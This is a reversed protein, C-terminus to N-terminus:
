PHGARGTWSAAYVRNAPFLRSLRSHLEVRSLDLAADSCNTLPLKIIRPESSPHAAGALNRTLDSIEKAEESLTVTQVAFRRRQIAGPKMSRLGFRPLQAEESCKNGSSLRQDKRRNEGHPPANTPRSSVTTYGRVHLTQTQDTTWFGGPPRSTGGRVPRPGVAGHPEQLQTLRQHGHARKPRRMV